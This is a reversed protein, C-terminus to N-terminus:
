LRHYIEATKVHGHEWIDSTKVPAHSTFGFCAYLVGFWIADARGQGVCDSYCHSSSPTDASKKSKASKSESGKKTKKSKKNDNDTSTASEGNGVRNIGVAASASVESISVERDTCDCQHPSQPDLLVESATLARTDSGAESQPTGLSTVLDHTGGLIALAITPFNHSGLKSPSPLPHGSPVNSDDSSLLHHVTLIEPEHPANIISSGKWADHECHGPWRSHLQKDDQHAHTDTVLTICCDIFLRASRTVKSVNAM